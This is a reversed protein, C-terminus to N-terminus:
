AKAPGDHREWWARADAETWTGAAACARLAARLSLMDPFREGPEKALCRLIVAELDRPVTPQLRSPPIPTAGLHQALLVGVAPSAFVREGTALHYAVAGLAYVDAAPTAPEGRIVEPAATDPTGVFAGDQTLGDGPANTDRLVGFDLVKVVDHEGGRRCLVVNSPKVDRHVLGIAHAEALAGCVQVLVHVVRGPPLPGTTTVVRGLDLGDLLEMAYYFVGDSTRGYDYIQINNPHALRSTQQVEREFRTLTHADAIDPRLLKVATPRRLLAHSARYVAGMGGQGILEELRYDGLRRAEAVRNRLSFAVHSALVAV